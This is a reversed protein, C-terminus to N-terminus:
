LEVKDHMVNKYFPTFHRSDWESKTYVIPNIMADVDWGLDILDSAMDWRKPKSEDDLLVMVDWDSDARADGRARSGFLMVKATPESQRVRRGIMDTVERTTM